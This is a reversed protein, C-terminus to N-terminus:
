LLGREAFSCMAGHGTVVLHDLVRVDILNLAERLRNTLLEDAQSPEAAGSPHNHAFIVAAANLEITRRVIERPHVRAGDITGRAHEEGRIIRHRTTLYVVYFCEYPLLGLRQRLYEGTEGPSGLLSNARQANFDEEIARAYMDRMEALTAPRYKHRASATGDAARARDRIFLSQNLM